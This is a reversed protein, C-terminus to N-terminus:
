ILNNLQARQMVYDASINAWALNSVNIRTCHVNYITLVCTCMVCFTANRSTKGSSLQILLICFRFNDFQIISLFSINFWHWCAPTIKGKYYLIITNLTAPLCIWVSFPRQTLKWIRFIFKFTSSSIWKFIFFKETIQKPLVMQTICLSCKCDNIAFVSKKIFAYYM